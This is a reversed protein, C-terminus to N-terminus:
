LMGHPRILWVTTSVYIDCFSWWFIFSLLCMNTCALILFVLILILFIYIIHISLVCFGWSLECFCLWCWCQNDHALSKTTLNISDEPDMYSSVGEHKKVLARAIRLFTREVNTNEKASTELADILHKSSAFSKAEEATVQRTGPRSDVLDLKTGILLMIAESGVCFHICSSDYAMKSQHETFPLFWILLCSYLILQRWMMFTGVRGTWYFRRVFTMQVKYM